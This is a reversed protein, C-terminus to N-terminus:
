GVKCVLCRTKMNDTGHLHHMALELDGLSQFSIAKFQKRVTVLLEKQQDDLVTINLRSSLASPSTQVNHAILSSIRM